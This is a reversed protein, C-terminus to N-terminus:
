DPTSGAARLRAAVGAKMHRDLYARRAEYLGPMVLPSSVRRAYLANQINRSADRAGRSTFPRTVAVSTCLVVSASALSM